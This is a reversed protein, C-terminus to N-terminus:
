FKLGSAKFHLLTYSQTNKNNFYESFKSFTINHKPPAYLAAITFHNNELKISIACSQIFDQAFSPLIQFAITSKIYIAVGGHATNDPHNTHILKYGSIFIKSYRTFHTETILAIDIRKNNLILEQELTHNKLGNANFQLILLSNNTVSLSNKNHSNIM